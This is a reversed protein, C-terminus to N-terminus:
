NYKNISNPIIIIESSLGHYDHYYKQCYGYASKRNDGLGVISIIM